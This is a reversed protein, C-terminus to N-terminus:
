RRPAQVYPGDPDLTSRCWARLRGPDTSGVSASHLTPIAMDEKDREDDGAQEAPQSNRGARLPFSM